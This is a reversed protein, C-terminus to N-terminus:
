DDLALASAAAACATAEAHTSWQSHGVKTQVVLCSQFPIKMLLEFNFKIDWHMM